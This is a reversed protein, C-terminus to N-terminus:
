EYSRCTSYYASTVPFRVHRVSETVRGHGAKGGLGGKGLQVGEICWCLRCCTLMGRIILGYTKGTRVVQTSTTTMTTIMMMQLLPGGIQLEQTHTSCIQLHDAYELVADDRFTKRKTVLIAVESARRQPPPCFPYQVLSSTMCPM